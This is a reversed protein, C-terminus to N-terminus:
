ALRKRLIFACADGAGKENLEVAKQKFANIEEESFLSNNPTPDKLPIDKIYRESGVFQFESSDFIIQEIKLGAKQALLEMSEKSHLFFHRPADLQVWNERYHEWAYSSATPVRIICYGEDELIREVSQLTELPDDLHEFSHHFMVLDMKDKVDHVSRKQLELGDNLKEDKELYPDVGRLKNFGIQNLAKLLVGSGCGVDLIKHDRELPIKSLITIHPDNNPKFGYILKGILGKQFLQYENRKSKLFSGIKSTISNSTGAYSYYDSPYYKEM